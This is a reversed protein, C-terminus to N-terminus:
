RVVKGTGLPFRIIKFPKKDGEKPYEECLRKVERATERSSYLEKDVDMPGIVKYAYKNM